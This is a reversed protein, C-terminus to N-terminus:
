DIWPRNPGVIVVGDSTTIRLTRRPLINEGDVFRSPWFALDNGWHEGIQFVVAEEGVAKALSTLLPRALVPEPSLAGRRRAEVSAACGPTQARAGHGGIWLVYAPADL